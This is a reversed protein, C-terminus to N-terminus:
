QFGELRHASVLIAVLAATLQTRTVAHPFKGWVNERKWGLFALLSFNYDDDQFM